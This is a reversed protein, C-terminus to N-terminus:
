LRTARSKGSSRLGITLRVVRRGRAITVAAAVQRPATHAASQLLSLQMFDGNIDNRLCRKTRVDPKARDTSAGGKLPQPTRVPRSSPTSTDSTSGLRSAPVPSDSGLTPSSSEESADVSCSDEGRGISTKEKKGVDPAVGAPAHTLQISLLQPVTM